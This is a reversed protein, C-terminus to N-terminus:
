LEILKNELLYILLKGRANAESKDSQTTLRDYNHSTNYYWIFWLNDQKQIKIRFRLHTRVYEPLLEGLEGVTYAFIYMDDGICTSQCNECFYQYTIKECRLCYRFGGEKKVGLEKLRKAIEIAEKGDNAEAIVEFDQQKELWMRVAQRMLPHDDALAIRIKSHDDRVTEIM